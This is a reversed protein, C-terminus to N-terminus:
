SSASPPSVASFDMQADFDEAVLTSLDEDSPDSLAVVRTALSGIAKEFVNRALRGNGFNQDRNSYAMEFLHLASDRGGLGLKYDSDSCFGELIRLLQEPSYDEFNLYKNFRSQLGPNSDIFRKMPEPYGAVIVVLENRHNEMMNLLTDIAELGHDHVIAPRALAYAEDIFLVGGLATTVVGQTKLATESAYMGCLGARDTEVLHGSKLLGLAKYMRGILRAVTTKGTGPNGLFVLHLSVDAAKFNRARRMQVVRLSNMVQALDKKVADLGVLSNLEALIAEIARADQPPQDQATEIQAPAPTNLGLRFAGLFDLSAQSEMELVDLLNRVVLMFLKVLTRELEPQHLSRLIRLSEPEVMPSGPLSKLYDAFQAIEYNRFNRPNIARGLLYLFTISDETSASATRWAKCAETVINAGIEEAVLPLSAKSSAAETGAVVPKLGRYFDRFEKRIKRVRTDNADPYCITKIRELATREAPNMPGDALMLNEAFEMLLPATSDYLATDHENDFRLPVNILLLLNGDYLGKVTKYHSEHKQQLDSTLEPTSTDPTKYGIIAFVEKAYQAEDSNVPRDIAAAYCVLAELAGTIYGIATGKSRDEPSQSNVHWVWAEEWKPILDKMQKALKM